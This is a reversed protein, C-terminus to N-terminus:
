CGFSDPLPGPLSTIHYLGENLVYSPLFECFEPSKVLLQDFKASTSDNSFYPFIISISWISLLNYDAHAAHRM